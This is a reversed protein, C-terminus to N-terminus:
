RVDERAADFLLDVETEERFVDHTTRFGCKYENLHHGNQRLRESLEILGKKAEVETAFHLYIDDVYRASPIGHLDCYADFDSLFFNGLVDSPFVGQVIGLSDREQFALLM